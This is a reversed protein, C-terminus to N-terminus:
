EELAFDRVVAMHQMSTAGSDNLLAPALDALPTFTRTDVVLGDAFSQAGILVPIAQAHLDDDGLVWDYPKSRNASTDGDGASVV